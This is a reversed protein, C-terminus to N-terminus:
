MYKFMSLVKSITLPIRAKIQISSMCQLNKKKVSSTLAQKGHTKFLFMTNTIVM